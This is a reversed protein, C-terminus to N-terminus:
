EDRRPTLKYFKGRQKPGQLPNNLLTGQSGPTKREWLSPVPSSFGRTWAMQSLRELPIANWISGLLEIPELFKDTRVLVRIPKAVSLLEFLSEINSDIKNGTAVPSLWFAAFDRSDLNQLRFVNLPNWLKKTRWSEVESNQM